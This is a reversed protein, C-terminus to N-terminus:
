GPFEDRVSRRMLREFVRPALRSIWWSFRATTGVLVLRQREMVGNYIQRAAQGPALESAGDTAHKRFSTSIYGPCVMTVSVGKSHVESRLTEFFGHMGHKSAAYASRGTLPAFGAVSSIAAIRGGREKIPELAARTIRVSGMLNVDIVREFAEVDTEDFSSRLPIGANNYLIDLHGFERLSDEVARRCAEDDTIDAEIALAQHGRARLMLYVRELAEKNRDVLALRHGMSGHECALASGLGGGAGTIMVVPSSM